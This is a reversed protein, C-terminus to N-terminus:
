NIVTSVVTAVVVDVDVVDVVIVVGIVIEVDIASSEVIDEPLIIDLMILLSVIKIKDHNYTNKLSHVRFCVYIVAFIQISKIIDVTCCPSFESHCRPGHLLMPM